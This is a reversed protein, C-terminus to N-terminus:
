SAEQKRRGTVLLLAGLGIAVGGLVPPLPISKEQDATVEIPGVDVVTERTTYTIAPYALLLAGVIVLVIAILRVSM